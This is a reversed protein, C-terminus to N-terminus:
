QLKREMQIDYPEDEAYSVIPNDTPAFGMALYANITEESSCCSAYLATAGRSEAERAAANVLAKGIGCHRYKRSVHFSDIIMRQHDLEPVLMIEGVVSDQDFACYTIYKDSLIEGAKERKREASWEETFPHYQLTLKGDVMRYVNKVEQFRDFADLSELRFNEKNVRAIKVTEKKLKLWEERTIASVHTVSNVEDPYEKVFHMGISEATRYSPVNTYKCYSYLVDFDTHIFAWDRVASAAERAYGKRQCDGRIHYGIEPLIQGDITQMTLGCDGIMEQTDKLCVAYLGFGDKEYREMNRHIWGRVRAEDFTYPYHQMIDRDALVKYLADYDEEEMNRLFLRETEAVRNM